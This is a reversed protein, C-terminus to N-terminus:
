RLIQGKMTHLILFSVMTDNLYMKIAETTWPYPM